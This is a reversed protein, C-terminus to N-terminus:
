YLKNKCDSTHYIHINLDEYEKKENFVDAVIVWITKSDDDSVGVHKGKNTLFSKHNNDDIKNIFGDFEQSVYKCFCRFAKPKFISPDHCEKKNLIEFCCDHNEMGYFKCIDIYYDVIEEDTLSKNYIGMIDMYLRQHEVCSKMSIGDFNSLIMNKAVTKFTKTSHGRATIWSFISANNVCEVFDGWSYCRESDMFTEIFLDDREERFNIFSKDYDISLGHESLNNRILAYEQTTFEKFNGDNEKLFIITNNKRLNDDIDFAYARLIKPLVDEQRIM